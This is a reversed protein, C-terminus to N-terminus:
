FHIEIPKEILELKIKRSKAPQWWSTDPNNQEQKPNQVWATPVEPIGIPYIILKNPTLHMRLFNKYDQIRMSSFAETEHTQIIALSLLLYLGMLLGGTLFGVAFLGVYLGFDVWLHQPPTFIRVAYYHMILIMAAAQVVGHMAGAYQSLIRRKTGTDAFAWCGAILLIPVTLALPSTFFVDKALVEFSQRWADALHDIPIKGLHMLVNQGSSPTAGGNPYWVTGTLSWAFCLYLVGILACFWPNLWPFLLNGLLLRRSVHRPPYVASNVLQPQDDCIKLPLQHTPHSFAGGGGATIKWRNLDTDPDDNLVERYSAYHHLDGTLVLPLQLGNEFIYQQCFYEFIRNSKLASGDPESKYGNYVWVPEATILIIKDGKKAHHACINHFYKQQPADIDAHLQIDTGWVWWGGPLRIAFYSRQQMTFWGGVSRKQCVQKLFAGLGDYWDHNGPIAFLRPYGETDPMGERLKGAPRQGDFADSYPAVFRQEYQEVSATPYVLDGGLLLLDARPLSSVGEPLPTKFDDPGLHSKGLCSAVTYTANWGEGMDSAFDIWMGEEPMALPSPVDREDGAARESQVDLTSWKKNGDPTYTHYVAQGLAAQMERRDAYGGFLDALLARVGTALLQRPEFWGVMVPRQKIDSQPQQPM